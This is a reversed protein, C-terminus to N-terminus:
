KKRRTDDIWIYYRNEKKSGVGSYKSDVVRCEFRWDINLDDPFKIIDDEYFWLLAIGDNDDHISSVYYAVPYKCPRSKHLEIKRKVFERLTMTSESYDIKSASDKKEYPLSGGFAVVSM